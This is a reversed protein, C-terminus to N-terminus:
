KAAYSIELSLNLLPPPWSNPHHWPSGTVGRYHILWSTTGSVSLANTKFRHAENFSSLNGSLEREGILAIYYLIYKNIIRAFIIM